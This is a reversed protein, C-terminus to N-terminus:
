HNTIAQWSSVYIDAVVLTSEVTQPAVQAVGRHPLLRPPRRCHAFGQIQCAAFGGVASVHHLRVIRGVWMLMLNPLTANLLLYAITCM